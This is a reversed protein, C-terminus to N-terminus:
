MVLDADPGYATYDSDTGARNIVVVVSEPKVYMLQRRVTSADDRRTQGLAVVWVIRDVVPALVAADAV